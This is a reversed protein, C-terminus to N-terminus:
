INKEYNSDSKVDDYLDYEDIIRQKLENWCWDDSYGDYICEYILEDPIHTCGNKSIAININM